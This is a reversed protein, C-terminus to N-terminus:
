RPIYTVSDFAFDGLESLIYVGKYEYKMEVINNRYYLTAFKRPGGDCFTRGVTSDRGYTAGNIESDGEGLNDELYDSLIVFDGPEPPVDLEWCPVIIHTNRRTDTATSGANQKYYMIYAIYCKLDLINGDGTGFPSLFIGMESYTGSAPTIPFNYYYNKVSYEHGNYNYSSEESCPAMIQETAISGGASIVTKKMVGTLYYTTALSGDIFRKARVIPDGTPAVSELMVFGESYPVFNSASIDSIGPVVIGASDWSSLDYYVLGRSEGNVLFAPTGYENLSYMFPANADTRYNYGDIRWVKKEDLDVFNHTCFQPTGYKATAPIFFVNGKGLASINKVRFSLYEEKDGSVTMGLSFSFIHEYRPNFVGMRIDGINLKYVRVMQASTGWWDKVFVFVDGTVFSRAVAVRTGHLLPSNQNFVPSTTEAGDWYAISVALEAVTVGTLIYTPAIVEGSNGPVVTSELVTPLVGYGQRNSLIQRVM